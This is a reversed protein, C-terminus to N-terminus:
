YLFREVPGTNWPKWGHIITRALYFDNEAIYTSRHFSIIPIQWNSKKESFIQALAVEKNLAFFRVKSDPFSYTPKSNKNALFHRYSELLAHQWVSGDNTQASSGLYVGLSTIGICVGIKYKCFVEGFNVVLNKEFFFVDDFQDVFWRSVLDLNTIVESKSLQNLEFNEDIWKSIAWRELAEGVSRLITNRQDFGAAFGCGTPILNMGWCNRVENSGNKIKLFSSRELYEAFAIKRSIAKTEGFGGAVSSGDKLLNSHWYNLGVQHQLNYEQVTVYEDTLLKSLDAKM